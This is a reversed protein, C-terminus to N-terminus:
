YNVNKLLPTKYKHSLLNQLSKTLAEKENILPRQEKGEITLGIAQCSAEPLTQETEALVAGGPADRFYARLIAQESPIATCSIPGSRQVIPFGDLLEAVATVKTASQTSARHTREGLTEVVELLSAAEPIRETPPKPELWVGQADARLASGGGPRAVVGVLLEREYAVEALEPWSYGYDWRYTGGSTGSESTINLQSGPPAHASLYRRVADVSESSVWFFPHIHFFNPSGITFGPGNLHLSKALGPVRRSGPPPQFSRLRKRADALAPGRAETSTPKTRADALVAGRLKNSTPKSPSSAFSVAALAAAITAVALGPLLLARRSTTM